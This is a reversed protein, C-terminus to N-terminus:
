KNSANSNNDNSNTTPTPQPASPTSERDYTTLEFGKISNTDTPEIGRFPAQPINNSDKPNDDSM